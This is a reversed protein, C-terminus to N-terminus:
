FWTRKGGPKQYAFFYIYVERYSNPKFPNNDSFCFVKWLYACLFFVGNVM